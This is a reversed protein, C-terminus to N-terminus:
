SAPELSITPRARDPCRRKPGERERACPLAVHVNFGSAGAVRKGTRARRLSLDAPDGHVLHVAPDRLSAKLDARASSHSGHSKRETLWSCRTIATGALAGISDLDLTQATAMVADGPLSAMARAVDDAMVDIGALNRLAAVWAEHTLLTLRKPAGIARQHDAAAAHLPEPDPMRELLAIAPREEPATGPPEDPAAADMSPAAPPATLEPPAAAIVPPEAPVVSPEAPVPSSAAPPTAAFVPVPTPELDPVVPIAVMPEVVASSMPSAPSAPSPQAVAIPAVAVMPVVPAIPAPALGFSRLLAPDKRIVAAREQTSMDDFLLADADPAAVEVMGIGPVHVLAPRARPLPHPSSAKQPKTATPAREAQTRAADAAMVQGFRDVFLPLENAPAVATPQDLDPLAKIAPIQKAVCPVTASTPVLKKMASFTQGSTSASWGSSPFIPRNIPTAQGM